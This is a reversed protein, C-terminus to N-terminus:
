CHCFQLGSHQFTVPTLSLCVQLKLLQQPTTFQDQIDQSGVISAILDWHHKRLATNSLAQLIPLLRRAVEVKSRLQGLVQM